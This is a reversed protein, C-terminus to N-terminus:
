TQATVAIRFAFGEDGFQDIFNVTFVAQAVNTEVFLLSSCAESVCSQCYWGCANM